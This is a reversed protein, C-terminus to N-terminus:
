AAHFDRMIIEQKGNAPIETCSTYKKDLWVNKGERGVKFDDQWYDLATAHDVVLQRAAQENDARVVFGFAKDYWPKWPNDGEPLNQQPKLLFLKM